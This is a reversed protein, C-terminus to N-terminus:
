SVEFAVHVDGKDERRVSIGDTNAPDTFTIVTQGKAADVNVKTVIQWNGNGHHLAVRLQAPPLQQLGNDCSFGITKFKGKPLAIPTIAQAGEALQGYPMDDEQPPNPGAGVRWQGFDDFMATNDDCDVGGIYHQGGQRIHARPDWQGYSWASAQWAWAVLKRDLLAKVVRVGGYVGIRSVPLVSAAGAFYSEVDAPNADYDVALYIPRDSPMGCAEAQAQADQADQRGASYGDGARTATTEWVVVNDLGAASLTEAEARDLNKGSTDHSLYRCVFRVGAARLASVGPRGWAFDVGFTTM